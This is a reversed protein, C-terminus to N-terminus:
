RTEAYEREECDNSRGRFDEIAGGLEAGVVIAEANAQTDVEGPGRRPNGVVEYFFLNRAIEICVADEQEGQDHSHEIGANPM